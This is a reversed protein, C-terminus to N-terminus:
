KILVKKGNIIVIGKYSDDVRKGSLNYIAGSKTNVTKITKVATDDGDGVLKWSINDFYYNNELTKDKNLNFAVTQMGNMVGGYQEMADSITGEIVVEKWETTIELPGNFGDIYWGIYNGPTSHAQLDAQAAKDAKVWFTLKFKEGLAFVHDKAYIFFQADWEDVATSTAHVVAAKSGDIGAGEISKWSYAGGDEGNKVVLCGADEGECNGNVILEDPDIAPESAAGYYELEFNDWVTWDTGPHETKKIGITLKGDTVVVEASKAYLGKAFAASADGQSFPLQGELAASAADDAISALAYDVGNIYVFSNIVETGDAHAAVAIDNTNDTTNNYRYFGNWSIKYKGNPVEVTQSIDFTQSNGGWKEANMNTNDGGVSFDDGTWAAKNRNNRGFNPDLILFTADVPEEATATAFKALMDEESAIIWQANKDGAPLTRALVTGSEASWGYYNTGDATVYYVYVSNGDNDKGIEEGQTITLAVPDGDMYEGGFYYKEGGNSVQTEMFYTGDAQKLLTVYEPHQLLSGQTGWSNGAGWILGSSVNQLYYKGDALAPAPEEPVYEGATIREIKLNDFWARRTAFKDDYNSELIFKVPVGTFEVESSTTSGNPSSINIYMKNTGYDMIVEFNTKQLPNATEEEVGAPSADNYSGGSKAWVKSMDAEFPSYTVTGQYYNYYLGSVDNDEADKLYFGISRNNLGQIFFDCSIKLINTGMSGDVTPDFLVTGTGNGVRLYGAWKQEGNSWLGKEYPADEGEPATTKFHSFEMTGQAGPISYLQTEDNLVAEQEFDIDVLTAIASAPISNKFTAVAEALEANAAVIAAANEESYQGAKMQAQVGKAKDIATQLADKGTAADYLRMVKVAQANDIATQMSALTDNVALFQRNAAIILKTAEQYVTYQLLGAEDSTSNVYTSEDYTAIIEDQSMAEYEMIKPEVENIVAELDAKGWLYEKNDLYDIATTLNDRGTTIQTRVNEEYALQKQNYKNNNKGWLSADKVYTVSGNKLDKYADKCYAKYGIEYTGTEEIKASIIFPTFNVSELDKVQSAITDTAAEDVIKVIYAVGYAPDWGDNNTWSSSTPDERLAANSEIAFVYSGPDLTKQMYVGMPSETDNWNWASNGAYHGLDPYAGVNWFARGTTTATWDGYNSVKQINKEGEYIGLYNQVNGALYDDMNAKIFEDLIEQATALQEDLEAQGSEDGIAQLAEIAEDYGMDALVEAPWEYCNKYANLKELMADRQRTDAFQLAPAIQLDAIEITTAMTTFSIFWTRATGDGQIAYNFTQWNETLEEATNVIVEEETAPYTYTNATNGAVKVLNDEKKYGDGPIRIKINDLAAGKMKFSVVYSASADTPEFKFYMGEGATADLSVVSNLGDALGNANTNFKEALTKGEGIVTWGSMDQFANNKNLNEGTIQFRGQPTFVFDGQSLAFSSVSTCIAMFAFLLRKKM